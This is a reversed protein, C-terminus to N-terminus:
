GSVRRGGQSLLWHLVLPGLVSISLVWALLGVAGLANGLFWDGPVAYGARDLWSAPGSGADLRDINKWLWPGPDEDPGVFQGVWRDFIVRTGQHGLKWFFPWFLAAGVWLFYREAVGRVWELRIGAIMLPCAWLGVTLLLYRATDMFWATAAAAVLSSLTVVQTLWVLHAKQHVTVEAAMRSPDSVEGEVIWQDREEFSMAEQWAQDVFPGWGEKRWGEEVSQPDTEASSELSDLPPYAAALRLCRRTVTAPDDGPLEGLFAQTGELAWRALVPSALSFALALLTGYWVRLVLSGERRAHHMRWAHGAVLILFVATMLWATSRDLWAPLEAFMVGPQLMEWGVTPITSDM